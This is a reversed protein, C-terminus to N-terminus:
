GVCEILSFAIRAHLSPANPKGIAGCIFMGINHPYTFEECLGVSGQGYTWRWVSIEWRRDDRCQWKRVEFQRVIKSLLLFPYLKDRVLM